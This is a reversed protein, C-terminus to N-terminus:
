KHEVQIQNALFKTKGLHPVTVTVQHNSGVEVNAIKNVDVSAPKFDDSLLLLIMSIENADMWAFGVDSQTFLQLSQIQLVKDWNLSDSKM